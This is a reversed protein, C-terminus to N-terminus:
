WINKDRGEVKSDKMWGLEREKEMEAKKWINIILESNLYKAYPALQSLVARTGWLVAKVAILLIYIVFM